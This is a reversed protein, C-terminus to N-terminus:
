GTRSLISTQRKAVHFTYYERPNYDDLMLHKSVDMVNILGSYATSAFNSAKPVSIEEHVFINVNKIGSLNWNFPMSFSLKTANSDFTINKLKDYYSTIKFPIEKGDKAAIYNEDNGVSLYGDFSPQQNDPLLFLLIAL